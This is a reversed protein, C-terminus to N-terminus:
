REALEWRACLFVVNTFERLSGGPGILGAGAGFKRSPRSRPVLREAVKWAPLAKELQSFLRSRGTNALCGGLWGTEEVIM